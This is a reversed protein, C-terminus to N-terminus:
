NLSKNQKNKKKLETIMNSYRPLMSCLRCRRNELCRQGCVLRFKIEEEPIFQNQISIGLNPMLYKLDDKWVGEKYIKISTKVFKSDGWMEFVDVYEEYDKVNEPRVWTDLYNIKKNPRAYQLNPIMRIPINYNKVTDLKHTLPAGLLAYSAGAEKILKLDMFNNIIYNYYFKIKNEIFWNTDIFFMPLAIYFNGNLKENYMKIIDWEIEKGTPKIEYIFTKDPFEEIYDIIAETDRAEFFIEDAARLCERKLRANVCYKM